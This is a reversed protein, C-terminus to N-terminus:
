VFRKLFEDYESDITLKLEYPLVKEMKFPEILLLCIGKYKVYKYIELLENEQFYCKFNVLILLNSLKFESLIDILNLLRDLVKQERQEEIKLNLVKLYDIPYVNDNYSYDWNFEAAVNLIIRSLQKLLSDFEYKCELNNVIEENIVQYLKTIINKNNFEFNFPDYLITINKSLSLEKNKDLLVIPEIPEFGDMIQHFSQVIKVYLDKNEVELVNVYECLFEIDNDM